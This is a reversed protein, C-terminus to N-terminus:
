YILIFYDHRDNIFSIFHHHPIWDSQPLTALDKKDNKVFLAVKHFLIDLCGINLQKENRIANENNATRHNIM